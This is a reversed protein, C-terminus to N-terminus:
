AVAIAVTGDIKHAGILIITTILAQVVAMVLIMTSICSVRDDVSVANVGEQYLCRSQEQHHKQQRILRLSIQEEKPLGPTKEPKLYVGSQM